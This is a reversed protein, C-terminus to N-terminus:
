CHRAALQQMAWRTFVLWRGRWGRTKRGKGKVIFALAKMEKFPRERDNQNARQRSSAGRKGRACVYVGGSGGWAYKGHRM